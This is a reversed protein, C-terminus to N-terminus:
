TEKLWMYGGQAFSETGREMACGGASIGEVDPTGTIIGMEGSSYRTTYAMVKRAPTNHDIHKQLYALLIRLSDTAWAHDRGMQAM